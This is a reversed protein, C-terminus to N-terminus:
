QFGPPSERNPGMDKRYPDEARTKPHPNGGQYEIFLFTYQQEFV